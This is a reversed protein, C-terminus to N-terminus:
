YDSITTAILPSMFYYCNHHNIVALWKGTLQMSIWLMCGLFTCLEATCIALVLFLKWNPHLQCRHTQSVMPTKVFQSKVHLKLPGISFYHAAVASHECATCHAWQIICDIKKFIRLISVGYSAWSPSSHPPQQSNSIQNKNEQQWQQTMHLITIFQVM